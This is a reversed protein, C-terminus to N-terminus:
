VLPLGEVSWIKEGREAYEEQESRYSGGVRGPQFVCREVSEDVSATTRGTGQDSWHTAQYDYEEGPMKPATLKSIREQERRAEELGDYVNISAMGDRKMEDLEFEDWHKGVRGDSQKQAGDEQEQNEPFFSHYYEPEYAAWSGSPLQYYGPYPDQPTPPPPAFDAVSPASTITPPKTPTSASASSSASPKVSSLGFLDLEPEDVEKEREKAKARSISSPLLLGARKPPKGEDDDAVASPKVARPAAMSKNVSLTPKADSVPLKRKPPPLMGLLSSSGAGGLKPKKYEREELRAEVEDGDTSDNLASSKPQDLTIKVPGRKKGKAVTPVVKPTPAPAPSAETDSDSDSAYNALLM